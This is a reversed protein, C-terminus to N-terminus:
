ERVPTTSALVYFYQKTETFTATWDIRTSSGGFVGQMTVNDWAGEPDDAAFVLYSVAGTVEDWELTVQSGAMTIIINQPPDLSGASTTFSVQNGYTTGAGNTAYSRVYYLQSPDLGTIASTFVGTGTGDTTHDDALTPLSTESWCVGRASVDSYGDATVNGGGTASEPGIGTVADTSVTALVIGTGSVPMYRTTASTSSHSIQYDYDGASAPSFRAYITRTPLTTGTPPLSLENVWASIGTLSVDFGAPALITVNDVLNSGSVSYSQVGSVQGVIVEGFDSLSGSLVISPTATTFSVQNGYTTGAGNTAYSRAYYLHNPDLGTIASTFVGAGTGDTTHDDALTPLSTESWCVGRASVDSYGDATVNGGGTASEPGIGTVADTSVTPLVIGTGSVAVYKTTADPSTHSIDGSAPGSVSPAFRVYITTAPLAGGTPTLVLQSSFIRELRSDNRGTPTLALEFGTPADITVNGTLNSGSVTYSEVGSVQGVVVEGFDPLTEPAVSISPVSTTFQVQSGYSAGVSNTAYARAYYTTQPLLPTLTSTFVGAGTGDTTHDDALTPLSTESWCVGRASVPLGGGSTVEGGGDASTSGIGTITATTVVPDDVASAVLSITENGGPANNTITLDDDWDGWSTPEFTIQYTATQGVPVSYPLTQRSLSFDNDTPQQRTQRSAVVNYGTPAIIDGALEANGTNEIYFNLTNDNGVEVIGFDLTPPSVDIGPTAVTLTVPVVVSPEDLDNSYVTIDANYVGDALGTADFGVSVNDAPDGPDVEGSTFGSSDITLWGLDAPTGTINVEDLLIGDNYYNDWAHFALRIHDGDYAGLPLTLEQFTTTLDDINYSDISTWGGGMVSVEIGIWGGYNPNDQSRIWYSLQCDASALFYPTILRAEYVDHWDACASYSGAAADESSQDWDAAGVLIESSWGPPPVADEFGSYVMVDRRAPYTVVATWDLTAGGSNAISLNDGDTEDLELTVEFLLPTVDIEAEIGTGTVAVIEDAVPANHVIVINGAYVGAAPPAFEVDFYSTTGAPATFGLVNRHSDPIKQAPTTAPITPQKRDDLLRGRGSAARSVSVTYHSPTTISGVLEATGTNEISFSEIATTGAEVQGFDINGPVVAIGPTAVTLTVPVLQEPNAPDNGQVRIAANYVGDAISTADFGVSIPTNAGGATSGSTSTGGDITLWSPSTDTLGQVTVDDIIVGNHWYNDWVRFALMVSTGVYDSLSVTRLDFGTTLDNQNYTSLTDWNTGDISVEINFEGGYYPNDQSRIWYQMQGSIPVTFYPTILRSDYVNHWDALAGYTGTHAYNATQTWGNSQQLIEVSWGTPPFTGEFGESFVDVYTNTTASWNLTVDGDNHVALPQSTSQGSQLTEELNEPALSMMPPNIGEGSVMLRRSPNGTRSSRIIVEDDYNVTADPAFTLEYSVSGFSPVNIELQNRTITSAEIRGTAGWQSSERGVLEVRYGDPTVIQGTLAGLRDNNITFSLTTSDGVAVQGFALSNDSLTFESEDITWEGFSDIDDVIYLRTSGAGSLDQPDGIAYWNTGDLQFAQVNSLDVGNDASEPWLLALNRGQPPYDSTLQWRRLIGQGSGIQAERWFLVPSFDGINNGSSVALGLAMNNYTATGVSTPTGHLTGTIDGPYGDVYASLGMTCSYAGLTFISGNTISLVDNVTANQGLTVDGAINLNQLGSQTGDLEPGTTCPSLYTINMSGQYQPAFTIVGNDRVISTGDPMTLSGIRYPPPPPPPPPPPVDDETPDHPTVSRSSETEAFLRSSQRGTARAMLRSGIPEYRQTLLGPLLGGDRVDISTFVGQDLTLTGEVILNSNLYLVSGGSKDVIMNYLTDTATSNITDPEAGFFRVAGTNHGFGGHNQWGGAVNIVGGVNGGAHGASEIVAKAPLMMAALCVAILLIIRLTPKM